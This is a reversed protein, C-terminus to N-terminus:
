SPLPLANQRNMGPFLYLSYKLASVNEGVQAGTKHRAATIELLNNVQFCASTFLLNIM